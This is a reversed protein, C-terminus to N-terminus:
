GEEPCVQERSRFYLALLILVTLSIVSLVGVIFAQLLDM